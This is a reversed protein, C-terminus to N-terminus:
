NGSRLQDAHAASALIGSDPQPRPGGGAFLAVGAAALIAAVTGTMALRTM